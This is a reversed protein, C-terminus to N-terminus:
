EEDGGDESTSTHRRLVVTNHLESVKRHTNNLMSTNKALIQTVAQQFEIDREAQKEFVASLKEFSATNRNLADTSRDQTENSNKWQDVFIIFVKYFFFMVGITIGVVGMKEFSTLEPM